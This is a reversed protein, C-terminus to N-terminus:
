PVRVSFRILIAGNRYGEKEAYGKQILDDCSLKGIMCGWNFHDLIGDESLCIIRRGVEVDALVKEKIDAVTAKVEVNDIYRPKLGVELPHRFSMLWVRMEGGCEFYAVAHVSSKFKKIYWPVSKKCDGSRNLSKFDKIYFDFTSTEEHSQPLVHFPFHIELQDMVLQTEKETVAFIDFKADTVVNTVKKICEEMQKQLCTQIELKMNKNKINLYQKLRDVALNFSTKNTKEIHGKMCTFHNELQDMVLHTEKETYAFIEFKTDSVFNTVIKVSEEMKNQLCAQIELRMNKNKINLHQELRDATLNVSTEITKELHDKVVNTSETIQKKVSTQIESNMSNNTVGLYQKLRNVTQDVSRKNIRDTHSKLVYISESIQELVIAEMKSILCTEMSELSRKHREVAENKSGSTHTDSIQIKSIIAEATKSFYEKFELKIEDNMSMSLKETLIAQIDQIRKDLEEIKNEIRSVNEKVEDAKVNVDSVTKEILVLKEPIEKKEQTLLLDSNHEDEKIKHYDSKEQLNVTTVLKGAPKGSRVKMKGEAKTQKVRTKKEGNERPSNERGAAATEPLNMNEAKRSQTTEQHKYLQTQTSLDALKKSVIDLKENVKTSLYSLSSDMKNELWAVEARIQAKIFDHAEHIQDLHPIIKERMEADMEFKRTMDELWPELKQSMQTLKLSTESTEVLLNNVSTMKDDLCSLRDQFDQIATEYELGVYRQNQSAETQYFDHGKDHHCYKSQLDIIRTLIDTQAYRLHDKLFLKIQDLKADTETLKESLLNHRRNQTELVNQVTDLREIVHDLQSQRLAQQLQDLQKLINGITEKPLSEM